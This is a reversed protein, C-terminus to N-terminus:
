PRRLLGSLLLEVRPSIEALLAEIAQVVSRAKWDSYREQFEFMARRRHAASPHTDFDGGMARQLAGPHTRRHQALVPWVPSRQILELLGLYLFLVSPAAAEFMAAGTLPAGPNTGSPRGMTGSLLDQAWADAELEQERSRVYFQVTRGGLSTELDRLTENHGLVAHGFEHALVFEDIGQTLWMEIPKLREPFARVDPLEVPIGHFGLLIAVVKSATTEYDAEGSWRAAKGAMSDGPTTVTICPLLVRNLSFVLSFLGSHVVVVPISCDDLRFCFANPALSEMMGVPVMELYRRAREHVRDLARRHLRDLRPDDTHVGLAAMSSRARAIDTPRFSAFVDAAFRTEPDGTWLDGAAQYQDQDVLVGVNVIEGKCTWCPKGKIEEVLRALEREKNIEGSFLAHLCEQRILIVYM